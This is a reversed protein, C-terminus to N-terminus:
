ASDPQDLKAGAGSKAAFIAATFLGVIVAFILIGTFLIWGGAAGPQFIAIFESLPDFPSPPTARMKKLASMLAMFAAGALLGIIGGIVARGVLSSRHLPKQVQV